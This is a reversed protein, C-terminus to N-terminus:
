RTGPPAARGLRRRQWRRGSALRAAGRERDTRSAPAPASAAVRRLAASQAQSLRAQGRNPGDGGQRAGLEQLEWPDAPLLQRFDDLRQVLESSVTRAIVFTSVREIAEPLERRAREAIGLADGDFTGDADRAGGLRLPLDGFVKPLLWGCTLM